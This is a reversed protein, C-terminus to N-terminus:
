GARARGGAGSGPRGARGGVLVAHAGVAAAVRHELAPLAAEAGTRGARGPGSLAGPQDVKM